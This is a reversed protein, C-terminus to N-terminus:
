YNDPSWVTVRSCDSIKELIVINNNGPRAMHTAYSHVCLWNVAVFAQSLAIVLTCKTCKPAMTIMVSNYINIVTLCMTLPAAM